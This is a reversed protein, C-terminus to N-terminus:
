KQFKKPPRLLCYHLLATAANEMLPATPSSFLFAFFLKIPPSLTTSWISIGALISRPPPEIRPRSGPRRDLAGTIWHALSGIRWHDLASTIWHALASTIWHALASTIGHALASTIGHARWHDLAGTIWHALASTIWHAPRGRRDVIRPTIGAAIM